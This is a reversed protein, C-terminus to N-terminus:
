PLSCFDKTSGKAGCGHLWRVVGVLEERGRTYNHVKIYPSLSRMVHDCKTTVSKARNCAHIHTDNSNENQRCNGSTNNTHILLCIM